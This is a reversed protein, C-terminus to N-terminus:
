SCMILFIMFSVYIIVSLCSLVLIKSTLLNLGSVRNFPYAVLILHDIVQFNFCMVSSSLVCLLYMVFIILVLIPFEFSLSVLFINSYRLSLSIQIIVVGILFLGLGYIIHIFVLDYLLM